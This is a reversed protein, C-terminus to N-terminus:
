IVSLLAVFSTIVGLIIVIWKLVTTFKLMEEKPVEKLRAEEKEGDKKLFDLFIDNGKEWAEIAQIVVRNLNGTLEPSHEYISYYKENFKINGFCCGIGLGRYQWSSKYKNRSIIDVFYIDDEDDKDIKTVKFDEQFLEELIRDAQEKNCYM